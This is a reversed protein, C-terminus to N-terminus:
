SCDQTIKRRILINPSRWPQLVARKNTIWSYLQSQCWCPHFSLGSSTHQPHSVNVVQCDVGRSSESTMKEKEHWVDNHKFLAMQKRADSPNRNSEMASNKNQRRKPSKKKTEKTSNQRRPPTQRRDPTQRRQQLTEITKSTLIRWGPRCYHLCKQRRCSPVFENRTEPNQQSGNCPVGRTVTPPWRSECHYPRSSTCWRLDWKGDFGKPRPIKLKQQAIYDSLTIDQCTELMNAQLLRVGARAAPPITIKVENEAADSV